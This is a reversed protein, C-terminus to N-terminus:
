KFYFASSSQNIKADFALEITQQLNESANKSDRFRSEFLWCRLNFDCLICGLFEQRAPFAVAKVIQLVVNTVQTKTASIDKPVPTNQVLTKARSSSSVINFNKGFM